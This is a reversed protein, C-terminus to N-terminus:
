RACASTMPWSPPAPARLFIADVEGRLLGVLEANRGEARRSSVPTGAVAQVPEDSFTGGYRYDVREVDAM